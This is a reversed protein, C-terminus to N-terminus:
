FAAKDCKKVLGYEKSLAAVEGELNKVGDVEVVKNRHIAELLCEMSLLLSDNFKLVESGREKLEIKGEIITLMKM